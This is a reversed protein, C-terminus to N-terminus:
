QYNELFKVRKYNERAYCDILYIPAERGGEAASYECTCKYKRNKLWLRQSELLKEKKTGKLLKMRKKYEINLKKDSDLYSKSVCYILDEQMPSGDKCEVELADPYLFDEPTVAYSNLSIFLLTLIFLKSIVNM